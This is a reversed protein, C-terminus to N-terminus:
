EFFFQLFGALRDSEQLKMVAMFGLRIRASAPASTNAAINKAASVTKGRSACAAGGASASGDKWSNIVGGAAESAAATGANVVPADSVGALGAALASRVRESSVTIEASSLSRWRVASTAWNFFSRSTFRSASDPVNGGTVALAVDESSAASGALAAILADAALEVVAADETTAAIVGFVPRSPAIADPRDFMSASM